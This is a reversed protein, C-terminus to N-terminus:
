RPLSERVNMWEWLRFVHSIELLIVNYMVKESEIGEAAIWGGDLGVIVVILGVLSWRLWNVIFNNLIHVVRDLEFLEQTLFLVVTVVEDEKLGFDVGLAPWGYDIFVTERAVLSSFVHEHSEEHAEEVWQYM